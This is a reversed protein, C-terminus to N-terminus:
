AQQSNSLNDWDFNAIDYYEEVTSGEIQNSEVEAQKKTDFLKIKKNEDLIWTNGWNFSVRVVFKAM